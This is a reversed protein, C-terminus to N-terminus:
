EVSAIGEALNACLEELDRGFVALEPHEDVEAWFPVQDDECHVRVTYAVTV